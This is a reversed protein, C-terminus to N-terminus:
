TKLRRRSLAEPQLDHVKERLLLYAVAMGPMPVRGTAWRNVAAYTTDIEDSFRKQTLKMRRLAARFEEPKISM